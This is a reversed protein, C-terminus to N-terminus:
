HKTFFFDWWKQYNTRTEKSADKSDENPEKKGQVKEEIEPIIVVKEGPKQYGLHKRAEKEKYTDTKLYSILNSLKANEAELVEIEVQLSKIQKKIKYSQWITRSLGFIAYIVILFGIITLFKSIPLSIKKQGM